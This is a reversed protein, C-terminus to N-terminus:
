WDRRRRYAFGAAFFVAGLAILIVMAPLRHSLSPRLLSLKHSSPLVISLSEAWSSDGWTSLASLLSSVLALMVLALLAIARSAPVSRTLHSLGVVLGVYAFGYCGARLSLRLLWTAHSVGDFNSMAFSGALWVLGAGAVVSGLMLLTQGLLKGLSYTLRDVRLLQFRVSGTGLESSVTEAATLIIMLPLFTLSMWGYFLSLPPMTVLQEAFERDGVWSTLLTLFQRSKFLSQSLAGPTVPAAVGLGESLTEEVSKLFEVFLLTGAVAGGLYLLAVVLVRKSRVTELLENEAIIWMRSLTTTSM